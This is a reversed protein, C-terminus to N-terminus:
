FNAVVVIIVVVAVMSAVIRYVSQEDPDNGGVANFRYEYVEKTEYVTNISKDELASPNKSFLKALIGQSVKVENKTPSLSYETYTVNKKKTNLLWLIRTFIFLVVIKLIGAIIAHFISSVQVILGAKIIYLITGFLIISSGTPSMFLEKAALGLRTCVTVIGDAIKEATTQFNEVDLLSVNDTVKKIVETGKAVQDIMDVSKTAPTNAENMLASVKIIAQKENVSMNNLVRADIKSLLNEEPKGETAFSVQFTCLVFM